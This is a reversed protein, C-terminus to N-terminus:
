QLVVELNVGLSKLDLQSFLVVSEEELLLVEQSDHVGNLRVVVVDSDLSGNLTVSDSHELPFQVFHVFNLVSGGELV